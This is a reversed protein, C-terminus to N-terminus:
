RPMFQMPITVVGEGQCVDCRGGQSNFSFFGPTYGMQKALRQEAYLRRIEDFAKLYTAPNSRTSKGIPNQDIIEVSRLLGVDGDIRDHDGPKDGVDATLRHLAPYLIGKVLSSKGSGSLGTLVVLKDRPLELDINKLNNEKAGRIVIKDQEM